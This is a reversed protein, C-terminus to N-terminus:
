PQSKKRTFVMQTITGQDPAYYIKVNYDEAPGYLRKDKAIESATSFLTLVEALISRSRPAAPDVELDVTGEYTEVTTLWKDLREPIESVKIQAPFNVTVTELDERFAASLKRDFSSADFFGNTPSAPRKTKKQGSSATASAPTMSEKQGSSATPTTPPMVQEPGAHTPTAPTMVEKQGSSACGTLIVTGILLCVLRKM